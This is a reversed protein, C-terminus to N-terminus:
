ELSIFLSGSYLAQFVLILSFFLWHANRYIKKLFMCHGTCLQFKIQKYLTGNTVGRESNVKSLTEDLYQTTGEDSIIDKM